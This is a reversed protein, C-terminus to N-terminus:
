ATQGEDTQPKCMPQITWQANEADIGTERMEALGYERGLVTCEYATEALPPPEVSMWGYTTCVGETANLEATCLVFGILMWM